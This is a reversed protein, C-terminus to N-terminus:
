IANTSVVTSCLKTEEASPVLPAHTHAPQLHTGLPTAINANDIHNCLMLCTIDNIIKFTSVYDYM